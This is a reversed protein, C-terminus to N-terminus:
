LALDKEQEKLKRNRIGSGLFLWDRGATEQLPTQRIVLILRM